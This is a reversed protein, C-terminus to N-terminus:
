RPRALYRALAEGLGRHRAPFAAHREALAAAGAASLATAERRWTLCTAGDGERLEIALLEVWREPEFITFGIRRPPEHAHIVWTASGTRFVCGPEAAGSAAYVVEASWGDVWDRERVPCLLGFVDGRPAAVHLDIEFHWRVQYM